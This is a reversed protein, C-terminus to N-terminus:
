KRRHYLGLCLSCQKFHGSQLSALMSKACSCCKLCFTPLSGLKVRTSNAASENSAAPTATEATDPQPQQGTTLDVQNLESVTYKLKERNLARLQKFHDLERYQLAQWKSKLTSLSRHDDDGGATPELIPSEGQPARCRKHGNTPTSPAGGKVVELPLPCVATCATKLKHIVPALDQRPTLVEILLAQDQATWHGASSPSPSDTSKPAAPSKLFMACLGHVWHTALDIKVEIEQMKKLKIPLESALKVTDILDNLHAKKRPSQVCSSWQYTRNTLPSCAARSSSVKSIQVITGNIQKATTVCKELAKVSDLSVPVKRADTM